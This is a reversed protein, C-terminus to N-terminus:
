FKNYDEHSGIWIWTFEDPASFYGVARYHDGVRASYLNRHFSKFHISPHRLNKLWLLYNKYALEQIEQPLENFQKWFRSSVKSIM